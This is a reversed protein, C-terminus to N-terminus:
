VDSEEKKMQHCREVIDYSKRMYSENIKNDPHSKAFKVLDAEVLLTSIQELLEKNLHAEKLLELTEDTTSELTDISFARDFYNRLIETLRVYHEKVKGKDCLSENELNKLADIAEIECPIVEIVEEEEKDNSNIKQILYYLLLVLLILGIFGYIYPKAEQFNFPVAVPAKIDFVANTTDLPVELFAFALSDSYFTDGNASIFPLSPFVVRGSDFYQVTLRQNYKSLGNTLVSDITNVNQLELPAIAKEIDPWILANDSQVELHLNIVDGIWVINTDAQIQISTQAHSQICVFASFIYLLRKM